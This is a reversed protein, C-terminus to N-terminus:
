DRPSKSKALCWHFVLFLHIRRNQECPALVLTGFRLCQSLLISDLKCWFSESERWPWSCGHLAFQLWSHCTYVALFRLSICYQNCDHMCRSYMHWMVFLRKILWTDIQIMNYCARPGDSAGFRPGSNTTLQNSTTSFLVSHRSSEGFKCAGWVEFETQISKQGPLTQRLWASALVETSTIKIGAAFGYQVM